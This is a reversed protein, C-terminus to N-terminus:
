RVILIKRVLLRALYIAADRPLNDAGRHSLSLQIHHSSAWYARNTVGAFRFLVKSDEGHGRSFQQTYM